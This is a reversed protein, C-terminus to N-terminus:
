RKPMVTILVGDQTNSGGATATVAVDLTPESTALINPVVVNIQYTGASSM